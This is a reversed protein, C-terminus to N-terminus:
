TFTGFYSTRRRNKQIFEKAIDQLQLQDVRDNHAYLLMLQNLRNQTMTSRLYSKLRRLSSFCREATASTLPLTLYLKLVKDVESLMTKPFKCVNLMECVTKVMTVKKIGMKHEENSTKLVDPLLSLQIKLKNMDIDGKYMEEFNEYNGNKDKENCSDVLMSEMEGMIGFTPQNFRQSLENLLLDLIEFYQQRFYDKPCSFQHNPFDDDIRRPIQRQRPLTPKSTINESEKIVVEYFSNFAFDSRQRKLFSNAMRVSSLVEQANIDRYQLTKSLQEMASFVMFSVKLGFYTSFKEMLAVVGLSKRSSDGKAEESIVDLEKMIVSYNKIVAHLSETRVTWRTPCLPKLEPTGPNLENQLHHFQALRKPSSRIISSIETAISLSDRM